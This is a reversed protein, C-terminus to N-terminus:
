CQQEAPALGPAAAAAVHLDKRESTQPRTGPPLFLDVQSFMGLPVSAAVAATTTFSECSVTPSGKPAIKDTHASRCDNRHCVIGQHLDIRM